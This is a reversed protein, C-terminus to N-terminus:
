YTVMGNTIKVGFSEPTGISVRYPGTKNSFFIRTSYTKTSSTAVLNNYSTGVWGNILDYRQITVSFDVNYKQPSVYNFKIDAYGLSQVNFSPSYITIKDTATGSFEKVARSLSNNEEILIEDSSDSSAAEAVNNNFGLSLVIGLVWILYKM